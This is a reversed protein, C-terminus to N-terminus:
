NVAVSSGCVEKKDRDRGGRGRKSIRIEDEEEACSALWRILAVEM